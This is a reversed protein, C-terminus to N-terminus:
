VSGWGAGRARVGFHHVYRPTEHPRTRASKTHKEAHKEYSFGTNSIRVSLPPKHVRSHIGRRSPWGGGGDPAISPPWACRWVGMGRADAGAGSRHVYRPTKQTNTCVCRPQKQTRKEYSFGTNSIRVSLLHKLISQHIGCGGMGRRARRAPFSPDQGRDHRQINVTQVVNPKM